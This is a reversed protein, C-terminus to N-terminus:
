RVGLVAEGPYTGPFLPMSVKGSDLLWFFYRQYKSCPLLDLNIFVQSCLAWVPVARGRREEAVVAEPLWGVQQRHRAGATPFINPSTPCDM